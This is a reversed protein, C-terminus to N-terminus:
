KQAASCREKAARCISLSDLIKEDTFHQPKLRLRFEHIATALLRGQSHGCMNRLLFSAVVIAVLSLGCAITSTFATELVNVANEWPSTGQAFAPHRSFWFFSRSGSSLFPRECYKVKM